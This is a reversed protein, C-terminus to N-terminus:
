RQPRYSRRLRDLVEDHVRGNSYLCPGGAYIDSSGDLHSFRGGAEEVIVALAAFDWPGGVPQVCVEVAGEAVAVAGHVAPHAHTMDGALAEGLGAFSPGLAELPPLFSFRSGALSAAASVHLRRHAGDANSAWAGAGRAAWWRMGDAPGSSVGLLLRGDGELAIETAWGPRGDVFVVTGDIGDVIWRRHSEGVQGVEEGLLADGPREAALIHRIREEVERDAATVPSGDGKSEFPSTRGPVFHRMSVADAEEALLLGLMLDDDTREGM